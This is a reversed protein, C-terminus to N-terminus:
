GKIDRVSWVGEGEQSDDEILELFSKLLTQGKFTGLFLKGEVGVVFDIL